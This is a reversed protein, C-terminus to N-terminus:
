SRTWIKGPKLSDLLPLSAHLNQGYPMPVVPGSQPKTQTTSALVNSPRASTQTEIISSLFVNTKILFPLSIPYLVPSYRPDVSKTDNNSRFKMKEIGDLLVSATRQLYELDPQPIFDTLQNPLPQQIRSTVHNQNPIQYEPHADPKTPFLEPDVTHRSLKLVTADTPVNRADMTDQAPHDKMTIAKLLVLDHIARERPAQTTSKDHRTDPRVMVRRVLGDKDKTAQTITGTSWDLRPLNKEKILVIDGVEANRKIETWKETTHGIQYM